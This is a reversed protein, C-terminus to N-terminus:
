QRLDTLQRSSGAAFDPQAPIRCVQRAQRFSCDILTDLSENDGTPVSGEMLDLLAQGTRLARHSEDRKAAAVIKSPSELYGLDHFISNLESQLLRDGTDVQTADTGIAKSPVTSNAEVALNGSVNM